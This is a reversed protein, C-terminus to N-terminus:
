CSSDVRGVGGKIEKLGIGHRKCLVSYVRPESEQKVACGECCM